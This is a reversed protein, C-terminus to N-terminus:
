DDKCGDPEFEGDRGSQVEDDPGDEGDGQENEAVVSRSDEGVPQVSKCFQKSYSEGNLILRETNKILQYIVADCIEPFPIYIISLLTAVTLHVFVAIRQIM